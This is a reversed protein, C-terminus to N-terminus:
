CFLGFCPLLPMHEAGSVESILLLTTLIPNIKRWTNENGKSEEIVLRGIITREDKPFHLMSQKGTFTKM